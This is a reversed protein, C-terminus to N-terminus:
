KLERRERMREEYISISKFGGYIAVIMSLVIAALFVFPGIIRLINVIMEGPDNM